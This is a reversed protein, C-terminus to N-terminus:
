RGVFTSYRRVFTATLMEQTLAETPFPQSELFAQKISIFFKAMYISGENGQELEPRDRDRQEPAVDDWAVFVRWRRYASGIIIGEMKPASFHLLLGSVASATRIPRWLPSFVRSGGKTLSDVFTLSILSIFRNHSREMIFWRPTLSPM